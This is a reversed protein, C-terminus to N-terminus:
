ARSQLSGPLHARLTAIQRAVVVAEDYRELARLRGARGMRERAVANGVLDAFARALANADRAPVLMGTEGDVVEERSGRINTAVVPKGMLMAEIITRPMGERHSPLTFVDMAALLDPIDSRQGTLILRDGLEDRAGSLAVEIGAAHDSALREGVALFYAPLGQAVVIRAAELFEAYGKEAVMRGIVGILVADRPVGLASRVADRAFVRAPDFQAIDVGNGIAIVRGAPLFKKRIATRADEESQTFLLDTLRGGLWELGTFLAKPVAHMDDHFYFGHATYVVMPVGAVRAAIRGLLAAVPTHVHLVDFRERRFLRILGFLSVANKLPNLSRAIPLTEIAYGARRLDAVFPGDSCVATVRWGAARMGDILATLFHKLTFDVACLQCVKLTMPHIARFWLAAFTYNYATFCLKGGFSPM